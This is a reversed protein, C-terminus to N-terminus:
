TPKSIPKEQTRRAEEDMARVEGLPELSLRGLSRFFGLLFDGYSPSYLARPLRDWVLRHAKSLHYSPVQPFLHHELHYNEDLFLFRVLPNSRVTRSSLYIDETDGLAHSALGRVNTLAMMVASPAIWYTLLAQASFTQAMWLVFGAILTMEILIMARVKNSAGRMGLIPILLIYLVSGFFLQLLYACWVLAPKGLHQRYTGYDMGRGFEFHHDTHTKRYASASVLLPLGCLFSWFHNAESSRALLGHLGEHILIGLTNMAVGMCLVGAAAMWWATEGRTALWAGALYLAVFPLVESVRRAHSIRHCAEIEAEIGALAAPDIRRSRAFAEREARQDTDSVHTKIRREDPPGM